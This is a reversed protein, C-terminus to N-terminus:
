IQTTQPSPSPPKQSVEEEESVEASSKQWVTEEPAHPTQTEQAKESRALAQKVELITPTWKPLHRCLYAKISAASSGTRDRLSAIAATIHRVTLRHPSPTPWTVRSADDLSTRGSAHELNNSSMIAGPAQSGLRQIIHSEMDRRDTADGHMLWLGTVTMNLISHGRKQMQKRRALIRARIQQPSYYAMNIKFKNDKEDVRGATVAKNLMHKVEFISPTWNPFQRTLYAKISVPSSGVIEGLHAIASTIHQINLRFPPPAQPIGNEDRVFSKRSVNEQNRSRMTITQEDGYWRIQGVFRLFNQPGKTNILIFGKARASQRVKGNVVARTLMRKLEEQSARCGYTQELVDQISFLNSGGREALEGVAKEIDALTVRKRNAHSMSETGSGYGLHSRGDGDVDFAGGGDFAGFSAVFSSARVVDFAHCDGCASCSAVFTAFSM